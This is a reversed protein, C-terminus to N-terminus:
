LPIVDQEFVKSQLIKWSRGHPLWTIIDRFTSNSLIQHLKTPFVIQNQTSKISVTSGTPKKVNSFNQYGRYVKDQSATSSKTTDSFTKKSNIKTSKQSKDQNKNSIEDNSHIINTSNQADDAM